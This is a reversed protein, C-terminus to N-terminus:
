SLGGQVCIVQHPLDHYNDVIYDLYTEGERGINPRFVVRDAGAAHLAALARDRQHAWVSGTESANATPEVEFGKDYVIVRVSPYASVASRLEAITRSLEDLPEKYHAVVIDLQPRDSSSLWSPVSHISRSDPTDWAPSQRYWPSLTWAIHVWQAGFVFLVAARGFRHGADLRSLM